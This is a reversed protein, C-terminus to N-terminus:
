VPYPCGEGGCNQATATAVYAGCVECKILDEADASVSANKKSAAVEPSEEEKSLLKFGYWVALIALAAVLLKGLSFGFM